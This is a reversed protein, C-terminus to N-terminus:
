DLEQSDKYAKLKRFYTAQAWGLITWKIHHPVDSKLEVLRVFMEHELEIRKEKESAKKERDILSNKKNKKYVEPDVTYHNVFRGIFNAKPRYYSYFKKGELYLQKKRDVNYFAFFGRQFNQGTYVHILARSRWLAVYKDLDFFTPM